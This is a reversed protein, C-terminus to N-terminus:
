DISKISAALQIRDDQTGRDAGFPQSFSAHKLERTKRCTPCVTDSGPDAFEYGCDHCERLAWRTLIAAGRPVEGDGLALLEIAQEPCARTCDGCAICAESDFAIGAVGGESEYSHLAGTPCIAACVNHNRCADSVRLAPFLETPLSRRHRKSLMAVQALLQLRATMEIRAPGPRRAEAREDRRGAVAPAIARVADRTVGTFFERRNMPRAALTDPIEAPMQGRPLPKRELRPLAQEVVGLGALLERAADLVEQAPHNARSGASCQGCWGRDVLVIQRSGSDVHWRVLDHLAIGGLCPVCMGECPSQSAAVKWCDIYLPGTSTARSPSVAFGETQLAGTPCAASCRGCRLCGDALEIRENNVHLARPPCAQACRECDSYRSRVRLCQHANFQLAAHDGVPRFAIRPAAPQRDAVPSGLSKSMAGDDADIFAWSIDASDEM